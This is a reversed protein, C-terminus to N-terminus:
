TSLGAWPAEDRRAVTAAYAELMRPWAGAAEFTDRYAAGEAGHREWGDHTVTVRTGSSSAPDFRVEVHSARAPSVEPVRGPGVQWSFALRRPRDWATVRGWDLRMGGAGIEHCFGGVRPEIVIRELLQGSWTYDRPWWSGIGDAFAAFADEPPADVTVEHRIPAIPSGGEGSM